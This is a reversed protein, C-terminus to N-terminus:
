NFYVKDDNKEENSILGDGKAWNNFILKWNKIPNGSGNVWGIGEYHDYFKECYSKNDIGLSEAYSIIDTLTPFFSPTDSFSNEEEKERNKKKKNKIEKEEEKEEKKSTHPIYPAYLPSILDKLKSSKVLSFEKEVCKRTKESNLWNYKHWNKLFVEKTDYDYVIVKLNQELNELIRVVKANKYGTEICIQSISLEYCGLQNAKSNTLLYLFIFKDDPKFEDVVKTDNWFETQISRFKAM